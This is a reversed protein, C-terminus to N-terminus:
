LAVGASVGLLGQVNVRVRSQVDVRVGVAPLGLRVQEARRLGEEGPYQGVGLVEVGVRVRHLRVEGLDLVVILGHGFGHGLEGVVIVVPLGAATAWTGCMDAVHDRLDPTAGARFLRLLPRTL